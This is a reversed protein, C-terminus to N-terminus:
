SVRIISSHTTKPSILIPLPLRLVQLFCGRTGSQGDCIGCSKVQSQVRAVVAHSRSSGRVATSWLNHLTSNFPSIATYGTWFIKLTVDDASHTNFQAVISEQVDFVSCRETLSGGICPTACRLFHKVSFRFTQLFYINVWKLPPNSSFPAHPLTM